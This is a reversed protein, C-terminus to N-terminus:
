SDFIDGAFAVARKVIEDADNDLTAVHYSNELWIREVAGGTAEVFLDGSDSPVVHDTRSQLLLAPCTIEGLHERLDAVGDFLSLLPEIPTAEYALEAVGEKAIDSGIGPMRDLGADLTGTLIQRFSDAPPAVLPNVLVIGAIEPHRWALWCTLTGGMSLGAVIVKETRAALEQYCAEAAATFDDFRQPIMDEVSTGHGPLLPMEVSYGAAAFAEALPRMSHPSGTFGHVVLVGHASARV